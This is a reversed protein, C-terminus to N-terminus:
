RGAGAGPGLLVKLGLKEGAQIPVTFGVISVGPNRSDYDRPPADAPWSEVTVKAPSLVEFRLRKGDKELWARNSGDTKLRAPTVMGWRVKAPKAGGTLQGEIMVQRDPQLAFRRTAGALQGAYTAGLDVVAYANKPDASFESIPSQSTVVQEADDILLTSHGRNHYRFLSWRESGQRFDWLNVGRQELANYDQAGLDLSWRVGDADLVFSGIDMHAHSASPTGAKIALFVANPDTWSSRLVGLPNQGQGLWNLTAPEKRQLGAKAWVLVLPFYRDGQERGKSDRISALERELLETEFWMLDPRGARAAFWTMAPSFGTGSGCDSFNFTRRTPGIINLMFEGSKLFGPSRSLDFDTGFVSELMSILMVNFSTGYNWYGPGEPYTGDPNYVKMVYPLGVIARRVVEAARDPNDELLALAGAVMGAHCVQNWNNRGQEWGPKTGPKLYPGLGKKEIAERSAQRLEPSLQEYLWDYGVAIALTMEATDLFHSPNWDPMAAMAKMEAMARAAYRQDGTLRFAFGLHMMRGLAERSRGLLRRGDKRHIVAPETLMEDATIRVAEWVAKIQRDSSIKERVGAEDKSTWFLRPHGPLPSVKQLIQEPSPPEAGLGLFASALLTCFATLHYTTNTLIDPVQKINM